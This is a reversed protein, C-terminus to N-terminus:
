SIHTDKPSIGGVGVFNAFTENRVASL